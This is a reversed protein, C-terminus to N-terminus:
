SDVRSYIWVKKKETCVNVRVVKGNGLMDKLLNEVTLKSCGMKESIKRPSAIDNLEGIVDMVGYENYKKKFGPM